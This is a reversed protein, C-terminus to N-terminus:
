DKNNKFIPLKIASEITDDVFYFQNGWGNDWALVGYNKNFLVPGMGDVPESSEYKNFHLTSQFNDFATINLKESWFYLDSKVENYSFDIHKTSDNLNRYNYVTMSDIGKITLEYEMKRILSDFEYVHLIRKNSKIETQIISDNPARDGMCSGIFATVV